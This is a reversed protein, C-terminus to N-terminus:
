EESKDVLINRPKAGNAPGIIGQEELQDILTASIAYGIKLHRQLKAPSIVGNLLALQKAEELLEDDNRTDVQPVFTKEIKNISKKLSRIEKLIFLNLVILLAIITLIYINPM